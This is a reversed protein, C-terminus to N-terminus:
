KKLKIKYRVFLYFKKMYSQINKLVVKLYIYKTPKRILSDKRNKYNEIYDKRFNYAGNKISEKKIFSLHEHDNSTLVYRFKYGSTIKGKWGKQHKLSMQISGEADTYGALYEFSFTKKM